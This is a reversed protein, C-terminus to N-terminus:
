LGFLSPMQMWTGSDQPSYGGGELLKSATTDKQQMLTRSSFPQTALTPNIAGHLPLPRAAASSFPPLSASGWPVCSLSSCWGVITDASTAWGAITDTSIGWRLSSSLLYWCCPLM